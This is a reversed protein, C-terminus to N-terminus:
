KTQEWYEATAGPWGDHVSVTATKTYGGPLKFLKVGAAMNVNGDSAMIASHVVKGGRDRYVVLDGVRPSTARRLATTEALYVQIDENDIWYEGNGVSYGHCNFIWGRPFTQVVGGTEALIPRRKM